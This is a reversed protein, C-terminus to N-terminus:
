GNEFGAQLTTYFHLSQNWLGSECKGRLHISFTERSVHYPLNKCIEATKRWKLTKVNGIEHFGMDSGDGSASLHFNLFVPPSMVYIFLETASNQLLGKTQISGSILSNRRLSSLAKTSLWIFIARWRMQHPGGGSLVIFRSSIVKYIETM